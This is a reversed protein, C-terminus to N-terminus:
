PNIQELIRGEADLMFIMFGNRRADEALHDLMIAQVEYKKGERRPLNLTCALATEKERFAPIYSISKNEDYLGLFKEDGGPDEVAVYVWTESATKEENM